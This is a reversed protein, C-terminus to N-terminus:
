TDKKILRIQWLNKKKWLLGLEFKDLKLIELKLQKCFVSMLHVDSIDVNIM